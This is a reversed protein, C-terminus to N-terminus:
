HLGAQALMQLFQNKTRMDISQAVMKGDRSYVLTKPIGEVGYADSVRRRPDFLIPYSMGSKEIFPRVTAADEDSIALVLLGNGQYKKYLDDLDPMEKRCPPCWTAWFNVLVVKGHLDSLTWTKGQLDTLSFNAQARKATLEDFKQLAATLQPDDLTVEVHELKILEALEGYAPAPGDKAPPQPTEKLATALTTATEQLTDHGLDGETARSALGDALRVKNTGAPLNRIALALDKTTQARTADPLSRLTGIKARIAAEDPTWNPQQQQASIRAVVGASMAALVIAMGTVRWRAPMEM